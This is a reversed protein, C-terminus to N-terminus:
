AVEYIRILPEADLLPSLAGVVDDIFLSSSLYAKAEAQTNFGHLVKIDKDRVLLEKSKAGNITDLFLQKYKSYINGATPRNEPSIFLTIELYAKSM